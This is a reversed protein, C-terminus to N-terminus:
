ICAEEGGPLNFFMNQSSMLYLKQSKFMDKRSWSTTEIGWDELRECPAPRSFKFERLSENVKNEPPPLLAMYQVGFYEFSM